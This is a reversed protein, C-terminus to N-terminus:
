IKKHFGMCGTQRHPSRQIHILRSRNALPLINHNTLKKIDNPFCFTVPIVNKEWFYISVIYKNVIINTKPANKNWICSPPIFHIIANLWYMFLLSLHIPSVKYMTSGSISIAGRSIWKSQLQMDSNKSSSQTICLMVRPGLRQEESSGM